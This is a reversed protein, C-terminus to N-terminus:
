DEERRARRTEGFKGGVYGAVFASLYWGLAEASNIRFLEITAPFFALLCLLRSMSLAGDADKFFHSLASGDLTESESLSKKRETEPKAYKPSYLSSLRNARRSGIRKKM